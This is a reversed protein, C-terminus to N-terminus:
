SRTAWRAFVTCGGGPLFRAVDVQCVGHLRWRGCRRDREDAACRLPVPGSVSRASPRVAYVLEFSKTVARNRVCSLRQLTHRFNNVYRCTRMCSARTTRAHTRARARTYARPHARPHARTRARTSARTRPIPLLARPSSKGTTSSPRCLDSCVLGWLCECTSV